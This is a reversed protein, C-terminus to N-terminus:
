EYEVPLRYCYLSEGSCDVRGKVRMTNDDHWGDNSYQWGTQPLNILGKNKSEINALGEDSVEEKIIWRNWDALIHINDSIM